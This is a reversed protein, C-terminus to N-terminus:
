NSQEHTGNESSTIFLFFTEPEGSRGTLAQCRSPSPNPHKLMNRVGTDIVACTAMIKDFQVHTNPQDM